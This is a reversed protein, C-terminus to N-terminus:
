AAEKMRDIQDDTHADRLREAERQQVDPVEREVIQEVILRLDRRVMAGADADSAATLWAIVDRPQLQDIFLDVVIPQLPSRSGDMDCAAKKPDASLDSILEDVRQQTLNTM